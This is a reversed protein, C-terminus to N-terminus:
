RQSSSKSPSEHVPGWAIRAVAWPSNAGRTFRTLVLYLRYEPEAGALLSHTKEDAFWYVCAAVADRDTCELLDNAWAAAVENARTVKSPDVLLPRRKEEPIDEIARLQRSLDGALTTPQGNYVAVAILRASALRSAMAAADRRTARDFSVATSKSALEPSASSQAATMWENTLSVARSLEPSVEAAEDAQSPVVLVGLLALVRILRHM